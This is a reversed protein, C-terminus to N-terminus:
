GARARGSWFAAVAFLLYCLPVVAVCALALLFLAVAAGAGAVAVASHPDDPVADSTWRAAQYSVWALGLSIAVGALFTLVRRWSVRRGRGGGTGLSRRVLLSAGLLPSGAVLLTVAMAALFLGSQWRLLSLILVLAAVVGLVLGVERRGTM